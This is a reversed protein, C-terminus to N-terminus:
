WLPVCVIEKDNRAFICGDAYAPHAWTRDIIGTKGLQEYGTPSLKALILEGLENFILAKDGAWVLSAQPNQGRPTVHQGEWLVKGSKLEICKLGQHRDLAYAHGARCLPTCMLQSLRRGQWVTKPTGGREDLEIAVSGEWYDSVLVIGDHYVPDTITVDYSTTHPVQWRVKGTVPDLGALHEATWYLLLRGNKTEVIVPSSYGPRDPLSRWIGKGTGRDLAVLCADPEGGVQVILRDGDVLASCAHGWTPLRGKFDRATDRMWIVKGSSADLCHLYGLAGLSYIRDGHVTPTARPGNGYDLKGYAVSYRHAWIEKGTAVDLCVVREVEEPKKQYDQVFLRGSTVAIGGFGGGLPRKWRPKLGDAPVKDPVRTEPWVGDRTPGRWQPWDAVGTREPRGEALTVLLLLAVCNM